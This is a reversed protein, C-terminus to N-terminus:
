AWAGEDPDDFRGLEAQEEERLLRKLGQIGERDLIAAISEPRYGYGELQYAPETWAPSADFVSRWNAEVIAGGRETPFPTTRWPIGKPIERPNVTLEKVQRDAIDLIRRIEILDTM